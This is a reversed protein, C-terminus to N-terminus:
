YLELNILSLQLCCNFFCNKRVNGICEKLILVNARIKKEIKLVYIMCPILGLEIIVNYRKRDDIGPPPSGYNKIILM